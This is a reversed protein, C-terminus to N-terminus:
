PLIQVQEGVKLTDFFVKADGRDLHICGHSWKHVDDAHFADGPYFFVSYPMPANRFETSRYNAKKSLVRFTGTPTPYAPDGGTATVPGYTIRGKGDTLWATHHSLVVCAKATVKCPTASVAQPQPAAPPKNSTAPSAAAAEVGGAVAPIAFAAATLAAMAAGRMASIIYGRTGM